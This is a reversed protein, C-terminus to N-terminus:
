THARALFFVGGVGFIINALWVSLLPPLIGGRGMAVSIGMVGYYIFGMIIGIAVGFWGGGRTRTVFAFPLGILVVILNICPFSFKYHLEVLLGQLTKKCGLSFKKIYKNIEQCNMFEARNTQSVFSGPTEGIDLVKKEFPTSKGSVEGEIYHYISGNYFTWKTGRLWEAYESITKRKIRNQKDHGLIIIEKLVKNQPYFSRIYFMQNDVGYLTVERLPGKEQRRKRIATEKLYEVTRMSKPVVRDNVIFSILSLLTGIFIFPRIIEYMSMGCAKMAIIENHRNMVMLSYLLSILTAFPLVRTFIIPTFALYYNALISISTHAKLIEDLHGFLDIVIHLSIFIILISIFPGVFTKIIYKEIINM